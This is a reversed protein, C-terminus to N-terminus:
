AAEVAPSQTLSALQADLEELQAKIDAAWHPTRAGPAAFHHGLWRRVLRDRQRCLQRRRQLLASITSTSM